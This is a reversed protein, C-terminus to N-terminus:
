WRTQTTRTPPRACGTPSRQAPPLVGDREYNRVAQASIGHGRALDVPRRVGPNSPKTATVVSWRECTEVPPEVIRNISHCGEEVQKGYRRGQEREPSMGWQENTAQDPNAQAWALTDRISQADKAGRKVVDRTMAIHTTFIRRAEGCRRDLEPFSIPYRKTGDGLAFAIGRSKWGQCTRRISWRWCDTPLAATCPAGYRRLFPRM